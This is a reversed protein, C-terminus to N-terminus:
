KTGNYEESIEKKHHKHHHKTKVTNKTKSDFLCCSSYCNSKCKIDKLCDQLKILPPKEDESKSAICGM